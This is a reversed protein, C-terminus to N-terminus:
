KVLIEDVFIFTGRGKSSKEIPFIEIKIIKAEHPEFALKFGEIAADGNAVEPREVSVKKTFHVGDMSTSVQIKNPFYIDAGQNELANVVVSSINEAIPLEMTLTVEKNYWGLWKGDGFNKSGKRIDILTSAGEGQYNKHPNPSMALKSGFGKHFDIYTKLAVGKKKGDVFVVAKLSDSAKFHLTSDYVKSSEKLAENGLAYYITAEPFDTKLDINISKSEFDTETSASVNYVSEAYNIGMADLSELLPVLRSTFAVYNKQKGSSWLAESLAVLRPYLMYESIAKTEIYESWLNGQAGLVHKKQEVSMSDVVPDFGYVKELPTYGGFAQPERDQDGQYFNLYVHSEPTMIVDHGEKSAEWGGQIGRWSMVTAKPALGGELIEDWGILTKGKSDLFTEIRKIFYSQLEAVDQLEEEAIRKRCHPCKAWNTKTAEDGGIHIYKSPFVTMVETLVNELFEFTSEKGACYIDTIPWVGGSPVGIEQDFCALEPYAAIASMVHAPMEIEPIVQMGYKAAYAVVEKLEEQTYFGGFTAKDTPSNPTRANWHKEEQDVRYGGVATLRPYQKIEMRWGQDDVLHLHLTNMKLFALRDITKLFYSKDFFHRSVDLMVGRWQYRPKDEIRVLPITFEQSSSTFYEKGIVQKLTQQAHSFGLKSAAEVTIKDELVELVYAEPDLSKNLVFVIYNGESVEKVDALVANSNQMKEKIELYLNQESLHKSVVWQTNKNLVFGGKNMVVSNPQPILAIDEKSVSTNNNTNCSFLAISM